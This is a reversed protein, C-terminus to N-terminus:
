AMRHIQHEDSFRAAKTFRPRKGFTSSVAVDWGDAELETMILEDVLLLASM